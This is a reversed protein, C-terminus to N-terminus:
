RAVLLLNRPGELQTKMWVRVEDETRLGENPEAIMGEGDIFNLKLLDLLSATDAECASRVLIKRGDTLSVVKSDLGTM